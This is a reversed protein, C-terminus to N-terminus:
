ENWSILTFNAVLYAPLVSTYNFHYQGFSPTGICNVYINRGALMIGELNVTAKGDLFKIDRAAFWLVGGSTIMTETPVTSINLLIDGNKAFFVNKNDTTANLCLKGTVKIDHAIIGGNLTCDGVFIVSGDVYIIGNTPSLTVSNFTQPSDYYDCGDIAAQRYRADMNSFIPFPIQPAKESVVGTDKNAGNIWVLTDLPDGAYHHVGEKVNNTASVNGEIILSGDPPVGRALVHVDTNSHIDGLCLFEGRVSNLYISGGAVALYNLATIDTSYDAIEASVTETVGAVTGTSIVLHRNGTQSYVVNYTGTDLNGSFNVRAAFGNTQLNAFAHNIGAEAMFQAQEKERVREILRTDQQIMTALPLVSMVMLALFALVMPLIMGGQNERIFIFKNYTKKIKKM